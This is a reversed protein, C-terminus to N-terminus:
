TEILELCAGDPDGWFLAELHPLGPGMTLGAPPSYCSVGLEGLTAYDAHIDTTLWAMRFIGLQNAVRAPAVRPAPDAWGILEVMFGSAPDRLLSARLEVSGDLRFKAGSQRPLTMQRVARLGMVDQYYTLSADYDACNVAVHSLRTSSGEVFEIQTGDPDSCVFLRATTGDGLDLEDPATWCDAGAATLRAHMADLDPTAICLRNFGTATADTAPQGVSGPVLWQLLDLVVGATGNAGQLIWADWQVQDLGFAGGPQPTEPATRTVPTLGIVDRYFALSRELDSCNVNVHYIRSAAITM